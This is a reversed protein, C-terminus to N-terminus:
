PNGNRFTGLLVFAGDSKAFWARARQRKAYAVALTVARDRTKVIFQSPAVPTGLLYSACPNGDTQRIVVDDNEPLTMSWRGAKRALGTLWRTISRVPSAPFTGHRIEFQLTASPLFPGRSLFADDGMALWAGVRHETAFALAHAVTADGTPLRLEDLASLTGLGYVFSPSDPLLRVLVEGSTLSAATVPSEPQRPQRAAVVSPM